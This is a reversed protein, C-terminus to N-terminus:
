LPKVRVIMSDMPERPRKDADCILAIAEATMPEIPGLWYPVFDM